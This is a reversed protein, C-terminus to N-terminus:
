CDVAKDRVKPPSGTGGFVVLRCHWGSIICRGLGRGMRLSRALEDDVKPAIPVIPAVVLKESRSRPVDFGFGVTEAEALRLDVEEFLHPM